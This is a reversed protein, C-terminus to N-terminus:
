IVVFLDVEMESGCVLQGDCAAALVFACSKSTGSSKKPYHSLPHVLCSEIMVLLSHILVCMSYTCLTGKTLEAIDNFSLSPGLNNRCEERM